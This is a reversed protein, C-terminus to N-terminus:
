TIIWHRRNISEHDSNVWYQVGVNTAYSGDGDTGWTTARPNVQLITLWIEATTGHGVHQGPKRLSICPALPTVVFPLRRRSEM